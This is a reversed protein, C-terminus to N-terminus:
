GVAAVPAGVYICEVIDNDAGGAELCKAFPFASTTSTDQMKGAAATFLVDGVDVAEEAIMKFTGGSNWIKVAVQDGAAFSAEQAIGDGVQALGAAVCRGDAELIVRAFQPFAADATMTIFGLDKQQSM